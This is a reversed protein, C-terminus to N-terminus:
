KEETLDKIIKTTQEENLGGAPLENLVQAREGFISSLVGASGQREVTMRIFERSDDLEKTTKILKFLRDIEQSVNPDAYGGNMEEAFRMFAVRQGQMEIIANILSKLQEKTKVEVPLNFACVSQPKFAPCNSAVFCTDCARLSSAQSQIVPIDKIVGHEDVETKVDYGFVPLNVIEEPNRPELKRMQVGKNDSVAPTMEGSQEVESGESNDSLLEDDESHNMTNIRMEFQEYSWVALKCVEQPDDELIKDADLGAKTYIGQYRARAQEKMKKPYRVLRTGDWVITEGHLMPSMWSMTSASEVKVQRLNDPKASGLAHFRTGDQIVHARTASALQSNAEIAEGPIAIDLYVDVLKKLGKLGTQPNWVPQFKGPPVESWATKRQNDVFDEPVWEGNIETFATLRDINNAIFGEYEAAFVELDLRDLRTGKPIGPHVYIYFDKGFYNELLYDSKKPLGRKMLRWYSVGVHNATTTELLTRNSPVEAGLYIIKM